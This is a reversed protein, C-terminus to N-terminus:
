REVNYVVLHVKPDNPRADANPAIAVIIEGNRTAALATGLGIDITAGRTPRFHIRGAASEVTGSAVAISRAATDPVVGADIAPGDRWIIAVLADAGVPRRAAGSEVDVVHWARAPADDGVREPVTGLALSDGIKTWGVRWAGGVPLAEPEPEDADESTDAAAPLALIIPRGVGYATSMGSTPFAARRTERASLGSRSALDAWDAASLSDREGPRSAYARSWAIQTWAANPAVDWASDQQVLIPAAGERAIIFGNPVPEAEVSVPDEVVLVSASDPSFAWRTRASMGHTGGNVAYVSIQPAASDGASEAAPATSDRRRASDGGGREGGGACGLLVWAALLASRPPIHM